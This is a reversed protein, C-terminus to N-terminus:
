HTACPMSCSPAPYLLSVKMVGSGSCCRMCSCLRAGPSGKAAALGSGPCCRARATLVCNQRTLNKLEPKLEPTLRLEKQPLLFAARLAEIAGQLAGAGAMSNSVLAAGSWALAARRAAEAAAQRADLEGLAVTARQLAQRM